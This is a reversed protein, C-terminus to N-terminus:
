LHRRNYTRNPRLRCPRSESKSLTINHYEKTREQASRIAEAQIDIATVHKAHQALFLTDHGNGATMDVVNSTEDLFKQMFLHALQKHNM